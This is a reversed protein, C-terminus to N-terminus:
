AALKARADAPLRSSPAALTALIADEQRGVDRVVEAIRATKGLPGRGRDVSKQTEKELPDNIVELLTGNFAFCLSVAAVLVALSIILRSRLEDLHEVLSLRDEHGIPPRLATSAM